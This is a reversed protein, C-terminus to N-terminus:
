QEGGDLRMMCGNLPSRSVPNINNIIFEALWEPRITRDGPIRHLPVPNGEMRDHVQKSMPTGKLWGPEVGWVNLGTDALERAACRLGMSLAAKSACYGASRSRAVHASNSSVAVFSRGYMAVGQSTMADVWQRLLALPGAANTVLMRELDYDWTHMSGLMGGDINIGATCVIADFRLGNKLVNHRHLPKTIDFRPIDEEGSIGATTVHWGQHRAQRTVHWGLSLPQAGVVLMKLGDDM